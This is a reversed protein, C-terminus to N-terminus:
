LNFIAQFVTKFVKKKSFVQPQTRPGQGQGRANRGKAELHDTESLNDKAKAQSRINKTEKAKAKAELRTDEVGGRHCMGFQM